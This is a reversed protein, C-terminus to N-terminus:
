AEELVFSAPGGMATGSFAYAFYTQAPLRMHESLDLALAGAALGTEPHPDEYVPVQLQLLYPGPLRDGTLLLGLPLVSKAKPDGLDPADDGKAVLLGEPVPLRFAARLVCPAGRRAEKPTTLRIGQGKPPKPTAESPRYSPLVKGSVLPPTVPRATRRFAGLSSSTEAGRRKELFAQVAPDRFALAPKSFSCELRKSVQDQVIVRVLATDEFLPVGPRELLDFTFMRYSTGEGPEKPGSGKTKSTDRVRPDYLRRALCEGAEQTIATVIAFTDFSVRQAERFSAVHWGLIPATGRGDLPVRRPGDLIVGQFGDKSLQRQVDGRTRSPDTWFEADELKCLGQTM